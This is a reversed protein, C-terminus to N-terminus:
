KPVFLATGKGPMRISGGIDTGLGFPSACSSILAGEGGSSGGVTRRVDFPNRTAGILNNRTEQWKNVEPINTTALIIAGAKKALVVCEADEKAYTSKRAILGLTHLKGKVSTSDKTTFPVGLLPKSAFEEKSIQNNAIREDILKAELLAEAVFPGDVIANLVGNVENMRDISAKVLQTSTIKKTEILNALEKASKSLFIYESKLPPCTKKEGFYWGLFIESLKDKLTLVM